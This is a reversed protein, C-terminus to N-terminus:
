ECLEYEYNKIRNIVQQIAKNIKQSKKKEVLVAMIICHL